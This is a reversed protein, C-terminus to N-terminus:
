SAADRLCTEGAGSRHFEAGREDDASGGGRRKGPSGGGSEAGSLRYSRYDDM